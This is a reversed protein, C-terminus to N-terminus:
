KGHQQSNEWQCIKISTRAFGSITSYRRWHYENPGPNANIFKQKVFLIRILSRGQM